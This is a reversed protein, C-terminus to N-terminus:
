VSNWKCLYVAYIGRRFKRQPFKKPHTVTKIIYIFSLCLSFTSSFSDRRKFHISYRLSVHLLSLVLVLWVDLSYVLPDASRVSSYILVVLVSTLCTFTNWLESSFVCAAAAEVNGEETWPKHSFVKFLTLWHPKLCVSELYVNFILPILAFLRIYIHSLIVM